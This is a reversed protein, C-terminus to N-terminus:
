RVWGPAGDPACVKAAPSDRMVFPNETFSERAPTMAAPTSAPTTVSVAQPDSVFLVDAPPPVVVAPLAAALEAVLEDAVVQALPDSFPSPEVACCFAMDWHIM